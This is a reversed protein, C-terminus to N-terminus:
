TKKAEIYLKVVVDAFSVGCVEVGHQTKAVLLSKSLSPSISWSFPFTGVVEELTPCLVWDGDIEDFRMWWSQDINQAAGNDNVWGVELTCGHRHIWVQGYQFQTPQPYGAKKLDQAESFHFM